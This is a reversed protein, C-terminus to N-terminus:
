GVISYCFVLKQACRKLGYSSIYDRKWTAASHRFTLCRVDQLDSEPMIGLFQCLFARHWTNDDKIHRYLQKNVKGLALLSLPDLFSTIHTLSEFPLSLLFSARITEGHHAQYRQSQPTKSNTFKDKSHANSLRNHM